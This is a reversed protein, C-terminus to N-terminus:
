PRMAMQIASHPDYNIIEFDKISYNSINNHNTHIRLEPATKPKRASQTNLAIKHDEYIHANGIFHIFEKARLDCHHALIHTLFSYSAINFPIGLGVDGSRQYLSCSLENDNTVHFQALTHCPPLAMEDLQLPNWASLILRRSSRETTSKLSDVINQLQDVGKDAYNEHCNKYSANFNRWQHGYIPGLDHEELHHLGRSDLFERSANPSWIRVNDKLLLRNDTEGRIFWLLEYLCAKWAMKKTTLLPIKHNRLPFRLTEGITAITYGNRTKQRVGNKLINQVLNLYQKTM